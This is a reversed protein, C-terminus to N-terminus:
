RGWRSLLWFGFAILATLVILGGTYPDIMTNGQESRRERPLGASAVIFM